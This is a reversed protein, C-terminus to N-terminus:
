MREVTEIGLLHLGLHITRAALDCLRLRSRKLEESEAHLVSCERYFGSFTQATEFLYNTLINPALERLLMQFMEGFQLLKKALRREFENTILIQTDAPLAAFDIGGKRGISRIRAYAYMMYPATNGELALMTDWDFKYDTAISRSLGAYRVAGIGVASAIALREEEPFEASNEDVVKQARGQAEDLLDKLRVSEGSKTKFPGGDPGLIMGFGTFDTRVSDTLWGAKKAAAFVMDFHQKQRVDVAYVLWDAKDQTLRYKITALDTTDYNYAGDSKRIIMPQPQGERGVFGDLFICVANQDVVAIGRDLLEQVLGPLMDNYFSEGRETSTVGLRAYIEDAHVRSAQMFAKWVTGTVPDGSQLDVVAARAADAFAPEADFRKKAEKYFLNLDSIKVAEPHALAEPQSERLYQILMGFQTGWDGIHNIRLVEHGAFELIRAITEGIISPPLHGVHMEKSMNPSPFDVVPRKVRDTVAIGLRNDTQIDMLSKALFENRLRLNIFGPGAIDPTDLMTDALLNDVIMKAVQRPPKQTKKGLAMAANCQYDGFKEDQAPRIMPEADALEPIARSLASKVADAIQDALPKM